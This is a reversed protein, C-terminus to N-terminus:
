VRLGLILLMESTPEIGVVEVMQSKGECSQQLQKFPLSLKATGVPINPHMVVPRAFVLRCVAKKQNLDGSVWQEYPNSIFKMVHNLATEFDVGRNKGQKESMKNKQKTQELEEIRAELKEQVTQNQTRIMKDLIIEIEDEIKKNLRELEKAQHNKSKIKEEYVDESIAKVLNIMPQSPTVKQLEDTFRSELEDRRISKSYLECQSNNCRYYPHKKNRGKSWSATYSKQCMPCLAFGRLPFDASLEKAFPKKAKGQLKLQILDYTEESIIGKHQGKRRKIGWKPYEILGAYIPRELIRKVQQLHVTKFKRGRPSYRKSILFKQIDRQGQFKDSAYGELAEKIISADPEDIALIKGHVPDKEYKYAPPANFVWYGGRMRARMRDNVRQTNKQREYGAMSSTIDEMLFGEPTDDFEVKTFVFKAGIAKFKNVINRYPHNGRALRSLDDVIIVPKERGRYNVLYRYASELGDREEKAGSIASDKFVKLVEHKHFIAYDRCAREQSELGNGERAQKDSSVRCYIIAKKKM